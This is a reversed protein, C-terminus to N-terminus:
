LLSGDGVTANYWPRGGAAETLCDTMRFKHRDRRLGREAFGIELAELAMGRVEGGM